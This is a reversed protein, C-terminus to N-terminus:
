SGYEELKMHLNNEQCVSLFEQLLIYHDEKTNTGLCVHDIHAEMQAGREILEQM